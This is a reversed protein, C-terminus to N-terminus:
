RVPHGLYGAVSIVRSGVMCVAKRLREENLGFRLAWGERVARDFVDIRAKAHLETPM